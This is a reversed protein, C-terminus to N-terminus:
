FNDGIKAMAERFIEAKLWEEDHKKKVCRNEDELEKLRAM